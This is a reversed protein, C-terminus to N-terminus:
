DFQQIVSNLSQAAAIHDRMQKTLMPLLDRAAVLGVGDASLYGKANAGVFTGAASLDGTYGHAEPRFWAGGRRIFYLDCDRVRKKALVLNRHWSKGKGKATIEKM